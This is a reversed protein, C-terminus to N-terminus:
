ITILSRYIKLDKLFIVGGIHVFWIPWINERLEGYHDFNQKFKTLKLKVIKMFQKQFGIM